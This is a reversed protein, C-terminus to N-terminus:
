DKQDNEVNLTIVAIVFAIIIVIPLIIIGIPLLLLFMLLFILIYSDRGLRGKGTRWSWRHGLNNRRRRVL